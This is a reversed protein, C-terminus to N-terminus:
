SCEPVGSLFHTCLTKPLDTLAENWLQQDFHDNFEVWPVGSHRPTQKGFQAFIEKGEQGNACATIEAVSPKDGPGIGSESMCKQATSLRPPDSKEMCSIIPVPSINLKNLKNILCAEIISGRCEASGHQCSFKWEGDAGKSMRANGFSNLEVDLYKEFNAFNPGLQRTIFMKCYPCLSEFYLSLKVKPTTMAEVDGVKSSAATPHGNATSVLALAIFFLATVRQM